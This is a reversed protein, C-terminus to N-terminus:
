LSLVESYKAHDKVKQTLDALKSTDGILIVGALRNNEFTYKEYLNRKMDKLEVTRYVKDPNKGNDGISFLSTGCGNFTLAGDVTEYTLSDGAANAGAVKGEEVAQSFLAYNVGAFAACDGAAYVDPVSTEMKENVLISRDAAIGAKMALGINSRVGTSVIVLQAELTRGDGLIVGSETIESTTVGTLFHVGSDSVIKELVDSAAETLQRSLLSPMSEVVTVDVKGRKLSWAAELGLVGGGIVVAKKVNPLMDKIKRADDICRVSVVHPLDAGKLPPIFCKAGLAYILKDYMLEMGGCSVTKKFTDIATVETDLVISVRSSDYWDQKEIALQGDSFDSLMAKTLMPRNYPLYKENSIITVGGTKDRERIAKAAELAAAGGGLILYKRDSDHNEVINEEVPVFNEKGVGCVPCVEISADFIAGCVLCKVLRRGGSKRVPEKKLLVCGFNYGFDYADTLQNESPKFRVRFGEVTKLKIQKLREMINPVGEGSWGYSGFASALRGKFIPYFMGTTLSWIPELAEGLITPTGFLYGDAAAMDAALDTKDDFILDYRHVEIEGADEVGKAIKESLAKTYGYASVYPMVVLKKAKPAPAACWEKYWGFVQDLRSDLVPGHGTCITEIELDKIRELANSMYPRKFPGIICDFYYKTADAYGEENKVASRVIGDCAFHSGFSDCTFLTKMEPCYTYMTDPWHLNPLIMFELTKDGLSLTDNEKVAISAFDANVIHKLFSIATGTAVITLSPNVELLKEVTGAHDPETHDMILYDINEIETVSEIYAKMEDWFAFKSTEFLATKESGKLLYSNYSTGYKTEMIIDFVKLNPDLVGTWYLDKKIKFAEM